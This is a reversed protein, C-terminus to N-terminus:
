YLHMFGRNRDPKAFFIDTETVTEIVTVVSIVDSTVLKM